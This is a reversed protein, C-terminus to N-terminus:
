VPVHFHPSVVEIRSRVANPGPPLVETCSVTVYVKMQGRRGRFYPLRNRACPFMVAEPAYQFNFGAGRGPGHRHDPGLDCRRVSEISRGRNGQTAAPSGSTM